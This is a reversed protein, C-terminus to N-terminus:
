LILRKVELRIEPLAAVPAGETFAAFNANGPPVDVIAKTQCSLLAECRRLKTADRYIVVEIAGIGRGFAEVLYTCGFPSPCPTSIGCGANYNPALAFAATDICRLTENAAPAASASALLALGALAVCIMRYRM